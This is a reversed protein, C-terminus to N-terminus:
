TSTQDSESKKREQLDQEILNRIYFTPTISEQDAVEQIKKRMTSPMRVTFNCVKEQGELFM